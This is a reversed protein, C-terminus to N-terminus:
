FGNEMVYKKYDRRRIKGEFNIQSRKAIGRLTLAIKNNGIEVAAKYLQTFHHRKWRFQYETSMIIALADDFLGFQTLCNVMTIAFDFDLKDKEDRSLKSWHVSKRYLGRETWMTQAMAYDNGKAAAKLAILYTITNRPVKLQNNSHEALRQLAPSKALATSESSARQDVHQPEEVELCQEPEIISRTGPIGERDLYTFQKFRDRFEELTGINAAINLFTNVSEINILRNNMMLSHAMVASSEALVEKPSTFTQIPLFPIAKQPDDMKATLDTSSIINHRFRRGTDNFEIMPVDTDLSANAYALLLFSFSRPNANNALNLQQYLVRALPLDGDKLALYLMYEATHVTPTWGRKHIEFMFDWARAKLEDRSVCGRALAVLIKQNVEVRNTLMEQYLDLAKEIDDNNVYSVIIDQYERTSPQTKQLFFKMSDFLLVATAHSKTKYVCTALVNSYVVKLPELGQEKMETIVANVKDIDSNKGYAEVLIEYSERGLKGKKNLQRITDICKEVEQMEVRDVSNRHIVSRMYANIIKPSKQMGAAELLEEIKPFIYRLQDRPVAYVLKRVDREPLDKFGGEKELQYLLLDWNQNEQTLLYKVSLGLKDKITDPLEVAPTTNEFKFVVSNDDNKEQDTFTINDKSRIAQYIEDAKEEIPLSEEILETEEIHGGRTALTKHQLYQNVSKTLNKFEKIRRIHELHQAKEEKSPTRERVEPVRKAPLKPKAAPRRPRMKRESSMVFIGRRPILDQVSLRGFNGCLPRLSSM